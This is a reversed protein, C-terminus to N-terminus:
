EFSEATLVVRGLTCEHGSLDPDVISHCRGVFPQGVRVNTVDFLILDEGFRQSDFLMQEKLYTARKALRVEDDM